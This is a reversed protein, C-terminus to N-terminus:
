AFPIMISGHPPLIREGTANQLQALFQEFLYGVEFAEQCQRLQEMLPDTRSDADEVLMQLERALREKRSCGFLCGGVAQAVRCEQCKKKLTPRIRSM